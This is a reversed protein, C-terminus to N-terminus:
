RGSRPNRLHYLFGDEAGLLVDAVGDGDFDCACPSTSHWELRSGSIDGMKRFSWTGGASATQRWLVANGGVRASNMVLDLRGDGDWDLLCIKRRGANGATARGNGSWGSVGMPKGTDANLFPRSPSKLALTGDARRFREFFALYGETDVMILDMLGDGNMDHMVPTTRWQTVIEKANPTKSAQFWGWGLEPQAGEWEVEVGEPAGLKPQRRTGINRILLPKGWISNMMIDPLGDGDWDAVSLCTYGWCSECPGQISGNHGAQIRMPRNQFIPWHGPPQPLPLVAPMECDLLKPEEWKPEAVGPGSLNEVFAIYGASNGVIIDQDGDGDWDVVWPTALVGFHVFDRECRLYTPQDFVPMGGSMKGTNRYFGIRGDEEGALFDLRGDRDWDIAFPSTICLDAHLRVGDSGRLIRGSTYVPSTRTGINEFYTYDDMFDGTIIDLDGDGDWDELMPAANGFVEVPQGNEMRLRLPEDWKESGREGGANRVVYVLGHIPGNTWDGAPTFANHWGYQRWDGVGIIIDDRGDGDFDKLRWRNARIKCDHVNVPLGEFNRFLSPNNVYDYNVSNRAVVATSGDALFSLVGGHLHGNRIGTAFHTPAGPTGPPTDNRFYWTGGRPTPSGAALYIDLDGDRDMDAPTANSCLGGKMFATGPTNYRLLNFRPKEEPLQPLGAPLGGGCLFEVPALARDSVRLSAATFRMDQSRTRGGFLLRSRCVPASSGHADQNTIASVMQGDLYFRWLGRGKEGGGNRDYVLAYHHWHRAVARGDFRDAFMTKDPVCRSAFLEFDTEGAKRSRWTFLWGGGDDQDKTGFLIFWQGPEPAEAPAFVGEVTWASNTIDVHGRLTDCSYSGNKNRVLRHSGALRKPKGDVDFTWEAVTGACLTAAAMSVGAALAIRRLVSKSRDIDRYM